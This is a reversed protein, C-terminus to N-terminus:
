LITPVQLCVLRLILVLLLIGGSLLGIDLLPAQVTRCCYVFLQSVYFVQRVTCSSTRPVCPKGGIVCLVAAVLEPSLVWELDCHDLLSRHLSHKGYSRLSRTPDSCCLYLFPTPCLLAPPLFVSRVVTHALLQSAPHTPVQYALGLGKSHTTVTLFPESSPLGVVSM